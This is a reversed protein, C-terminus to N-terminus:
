VQTTRTITVDGYRLPQRSGTDTRWVSYRGSWENEPFIDASVQSASISFTVIGTLPTTLSATETLKAPDNSMDSRRIDLEITWGTVDQPTTGDAQYITMVISADAGVYLGKGTTADVLPVEEIAM